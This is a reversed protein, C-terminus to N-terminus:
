RGRVVLTGAAKDHLGQRLPTFFATSYVLAGLVFGVQPVVSFVLPVVARQAAAFWAVRTGDDSRVVRTGTAVKGVTRGWAGIMLTEYTFAVAVTAINLLLLEDDNVSDGPRLGFAVAVIAVPLLVLLQDLVAGGARRAISALELGAPVSPPKRDPVPIM